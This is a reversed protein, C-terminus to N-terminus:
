SAEKLLYVPCSKNTNRGKRDENPEDERTPVLEGRKAMRLFTPGIVQPQVWAPIYPRADNASVKGGNRSAADRIAEEVAAIDRAHMPDATVLSAVSDISPLDRVKRRLAPSDTVAVGGRAAAFQDDIYTWEPISPRGYADELTVADAAALPLIQHHWEEHRQPDTINRGEPCGCATM